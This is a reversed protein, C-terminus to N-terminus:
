IRNQIQASMLRIGGTNLAAVYPSKLVQALKSDILCQLKTIFAHLLSVEIKNLPKDFNEEFSM